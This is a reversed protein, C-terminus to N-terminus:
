AHHKRKIREAAAVANRVRFQAQEVDQLAAEQAAKAAKQMQFAKGVQTESEEQLIIAREYLDRAKSFEQELKKEALVLSQQEREQSEKVLRELHAIESKQDADIFSNFLVGLLGIGLGLGLMVGAALIPWAHLLTSWGSAVLTWKEAQFDIEAWGQTPMFRWLWFCLVILGIASVSFFAKARAGM